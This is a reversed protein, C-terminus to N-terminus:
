GGKKEKKESLELLRFEIEDKLEQAKELPIMLAPQDPEPPPKPANVIVLTSIMSVAIITLFIIAKLKKMMMVM